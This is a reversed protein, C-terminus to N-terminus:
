EYRVNYNLDRLPKLRRDRSGSCDGEAIELMDTPQHMRTVTLDAMHPYAGM